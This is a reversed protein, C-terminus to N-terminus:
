FLQLNADHEVKTKGAIYDMYIFLGPLGDSLENLARNFAAPSNRLGFRFQDAELRFEPSKLRFQHFAVKLDIYSFISYQSIQDLLNSALPLPYADLPTVRNVTQAYDIVM